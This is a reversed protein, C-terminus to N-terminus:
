TFIRVELRTLYEVVVKITPQLNMYLSISRSTVRDSLCDFVCNVIGCALSHVTWKV